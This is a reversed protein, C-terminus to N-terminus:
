KRSFELSYMRYDMTAKLTIDDDAKGDPFICRYMQRASECPDNGFYDILRKVEAEMDYTSGEGAIFTVVLSKVLDGEASIEVKSHEEATDGQILLLSSAQNPPAEGKVVSYGDARFGDLMEEVPLGFSAQGIPLTLVKAVNEEAVPTEALAPLTFLSALILAASVTLCRRM